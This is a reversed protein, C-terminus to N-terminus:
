FVNVPFATRYLVTKTYDWLLAKVKDKPTLANIFDSYTCPCQFCEKTIIIENWLWPCVGIDIPCTECTELPDLDWNWCLSCKVDEECDVCECTENESYECLGDDDCALSLICYETCKQWPWVGDTGDCEEILEKIWNGCVTTCVNIDQPCTDCKERWDYKWDCSICTEDWLYCSSLTCYETCKQWPWVGDTGDCEEILEKIWNGCVTTCVKVDEPCNECTENNDYIGNGCSDCSSALDDPCTSCTEWFDYSGNGCDKCLLNLDEPCSECSDGVDPLGNKCSGDSCKPVDEPCNQCTEWLEPINNGCSSVCEWVDEPCTLCTEGNEFDIVGDWCSDCYLLDEPCNECTEWLEPINNGCSSICEWVDEPCTVCNEWYEFDIVDNGCSNCIPKTCLCSLIPLSCTEWVSCPISEGNCAPCSCDEGPDCINNDNCVSGCIPYPQCDPCACWENLDCINNNNCVQDFVSPVAGDLWIIWKECNLGLWIEPCGDYDWIGNYNEPIEPCLDFEDLLGDDDSDLWVDFNGWLDDLLVWLDDDCLDWIGNLTLDEQDSNVIFPCNDLSCSGQIHYFLIDKNLNSSVVSCTDDELSLIGILNKVGDWDIDDDCVDPIGDKDQDCKFQDLTKNLFADLCFDQWQVVVTAETELIQCENLYLISNVDFAWKKEYIHSFEFPWSIWAVHAQDWQEWQYTLMADDSNPVNWLFGLSFSSQIWMDVWLKEPSISMAYSNIALPDKVFLTLSSELTTRNYFHLIQKVFKQWLNEYFHSVELYSTNEKKWDGFNWEVYALDESRIGSVKSQFSVFDNLDVLPSDVQLQNWMWVSGVSIQMKSMAVMKGWKWASANVSYVGPKEFNQLFAEEPKKKNKVNIEPFDWQVYDVVLPVEWMFKVDLPAIWGVKNAKISLFYSSDLTDWVVVTVKANAQSNLGKASASVVYIWPELFTYSVKPWKLFTWDWMNWLIEKYDWKTVADFTVSLPAQGFKTKVDIYLAIHERETDVCVDWLGSGQSVAQDPNIVFLCNDTWDTMVSINIRGFADVIGIPNKVGDGDIDDDCVNWLGDNETDLQNPNYSNPCNDLFNSLGDCDYDNDFDCGTIKFIKNLIELVKEWLVMEYIDSKKAEEMDIINQDYLINIEAIPWEAQWISGFEQMNCMDLNYMCYKLYTRFSRSDPIECKTGVDCRKPDSMLSIIDVDKKNFYQYQSTWKELGDLWNKVASWDVSYDSYVSSGILNVVIQIFEAKSVNRVGCFSWGCIPNADTDPYWRVYQYDGAYAVCYYYAFGGYEWGLYSVDGFDSGPLKTFDSWYGSSYLKVFDEDPNICDVCQVAALLRTLEYRSISKQGKLDEVTIWMFQFQTSLSDYQASVFFIWGFFSFICFCLFVVFQTRKLFNFKFIDFMFLLENIFHIFLCFM